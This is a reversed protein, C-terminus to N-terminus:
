EKTKVCVARVDAKEVPGKWACEWRNMAPNPGINQLPPAAGASQLVICTGSIPSSNEPCESQWVTNNTGDRPAGPKGALQPDKAGSSPSTVVIKGIPSEWTISGGGFFLFRLAALAVLVAAIV